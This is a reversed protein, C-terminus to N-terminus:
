RCTSIFNAYKCSEESKNDCRAPVKAPSKNSFQIYKLAQFYQILNYQISNYWILINRKSRILKRTPLFLFRSLNLLAVVQTIVTRLCNHPLHIICIISWPSRTAWIATVSRLGYFTSFVSFFGRKKKFFYFNGLFLIKKQM